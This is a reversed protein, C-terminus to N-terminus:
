KHQQYDDVRGMPYARVTFIEPNDGIISPIAPNNAAEGEFNGQNRLQMTWQGAVNLSRMAQWGSQVDIADYERKPETSNRYVANDFTGFNVGNRSSVPKGDATPTYARVVDTPGRHW